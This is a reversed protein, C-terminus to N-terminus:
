RLCLESRHVCPSRPPAPPSAGVLRPREDRGSGADGDRGGAPTPREALARDVVAAVRDLDFPKVLYDFAGAQVARVATDLDGFATMVVVAAAPVAARLDPLSSIGDRGPLRVDLLVVDPAFRTACGLAEEISAAVEASHGDDSLVERLSWGIAPEDDVILIRSM